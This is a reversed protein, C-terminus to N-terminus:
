LPSTAELRLSEFTERMDLLIERASEDRALDQMEFPDARLDFLSEYYTGDLLYRVYKHDESRVGESKVITANEFLHEYFFKTRTVSSLISKGQVRDEPTLGCVELITPCIDINLVQQSADTTFSTGKPAKAIMPIRISEEFMWWKGSLGHEGLMMGNDSSFIILTNDYLGKNKLAEIIRGVERDIGSVLRYYDSRSKKAKEQTGFRIEWRRRGESQKLFDPLNEFSEKNVSPALFFDTEQYQGNFDPSPQFPWPDGDQAHPAKTSYIMCFPQDPLNNIQAVAIDGIHQTLHKDGYEKSFYRKENGFTYKFDFVDEPIPKGIGWKGIFSSHYGKERLKTTFSRKVLDPDYEGFGWMGHRNAYEGTLISARSTPCISTTVFANPFVIGDRGLADINPTHAFSNGSAGIADARLDDTLILLVNPPREVKPIQACAGVMIPLSVGMM